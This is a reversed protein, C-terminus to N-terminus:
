LLGCSGVTFGRFGMSVMSIWPRLPLDMPAGNFDIPGVTSGHFGVSFWSKLPSGVPSERSDTPAWPLGYSIWTRGM